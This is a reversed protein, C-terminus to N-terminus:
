RTARKKQECQAEKCLNWGVEIVQYIHKFCIHNMFCGRSSEQIRRDNYTVYRKENSTKRIHKNHVLYQGFIQDFGIKLYSFYMNMEITKRRVLSYNSLLSCFNSMHQTSQAKSCIPFISSISFYFLGKIVMNPGFPTFLFALGMEHLTGRISPHWAPFAIVINSLCNLSINAKFIWLNRPQGM